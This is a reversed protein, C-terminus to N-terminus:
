AKNNQNSANVGVMQLGGPDTSTLTGGTVQLAGGRTATIQNAMTFAGTVTLSGGTVSLNGWSNSTGLAISAITVTGGNVIVGHNFAPATNTGSGTAGSRGINIAGFNAIGNNVTVAGGDASASFNVAGFNAVATAGDVTIGAGGGTQSVGALST